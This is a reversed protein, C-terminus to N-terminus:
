RSPVKEAQALVPASKISGGIHLRRPSSWPIGFVATRRFSRTDARNQFPLVFLTLMQFYPCEWKELHHLYFEKPDGMLLSAFICKCDSALLHSDNMFVRLHYTIFYVKTIVTATKVIRLKPKKGQLPSICIFSNVLRRPSSISLGSPYIVM